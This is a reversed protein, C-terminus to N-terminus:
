LIYFSIFPYVCHPIYMCHFIIRGFFPLFNQYLSSSKFQLCKSEWLEAPLLNMILTVFIQDWTLTRKRAQLWSGGWQMRVQCGRHAYEGRCRGRSIFDGIRNSWPGVRIVKNLKLERGLPWIELSLGVSSTVTLDAWCHGLCPSSVPLTLFKPFIWESSAKGISPVVLHRGIPPLLLLGHSVRVRHRWQTITHSNAYWVGDQSSVMEGTRRSVRGWAKSHLLDSRQWWPSQLEYISNLLWQAWPHQYYMLSTKM